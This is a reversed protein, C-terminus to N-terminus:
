GEMSSRRIGRSKYRKKCLRRDSKRKLLWKKILKNYLKKSFNTKKQFEIIINLQQSSNKNIMTAKNRNNLKLTLLHNMFEDKFLSNLYM